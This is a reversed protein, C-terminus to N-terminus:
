FILDKLAPSLEFAKQEMELSKIPNSYYLEIANQYYDMAEQDEKTEVVNENIFMAESRMFYKETTNTLGQHLLDQDFIVVRGAKPLVTLKENPFFLEGDVNDNLYIMITFHSVERVSKVYRSDVHLTLKSENPCKVFRWCTNINHYKWQLKSVCQEILPINVTMNRAFKKRSKKSWKTYINENTTEILEILEQCQLTNLADDIIIIKGVNYNIQGHCDLVKDFSESTFKPEPDFSEM